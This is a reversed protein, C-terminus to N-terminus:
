TTVSLVPKLIITTKVSKSTRLKTIPVFPGFHVNRVFPVLILFFQKQINDSVSEKPHHNPTHSLIHNDRLTLCLFTKWVKIRDSSPRAKPQPRTVSDARM